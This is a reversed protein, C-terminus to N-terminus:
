VYYVLIIIQVCWLVEMLVHHKLTPFVYLFYFFAFRLWSFRISWDDINELLDLTNAAGHKQAHHVSASLKYRANKMSAMLISQLTGKEFFVSHCWQEKICKHLHDRLLCCSDHLVKYGVIECCPITFEIRQKYKKLLKFPFHSSKTSCDNTSEQLLKCGYKSIENAVLDVIDPKKDLIQRKISIVGINLRKDYQIRRDERSDSSSIFTSNYSCTLWDPISFIDAKM